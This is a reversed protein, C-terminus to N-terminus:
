DQKISILISNYLALTMMYIPISLASRAYSTAIPVCEQTEVSLSYTYMLLVIGWFNYFDCLKEM